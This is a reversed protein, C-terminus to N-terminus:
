RWATSYYFREERLLGHTYNLLEALYVTLLLCAAQIWMGSVAYGAKVWAYGALLLCFPLLAKSEAIVNQLRRYAM